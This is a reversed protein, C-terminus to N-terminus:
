AYQSVNGVSPPAIHLELENAGLPMPDLKSSKKGLVHDSPPSYGLNGTNDRMVSSTSSQTSSDFFGFTM